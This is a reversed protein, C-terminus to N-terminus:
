VIGQAADSVALRSFSNLMPSAADPEENGDDDAFSAFANRPAKEKGVKGATPPVGPRASHAAPKSVPHQDLASGSGGLGDDLAELGSSLPGRRGRGGRVRARGSGGADDSDQQDIDVKSSTAARAQRAADKAARKAARSLKSGGDEGTAGRARTGILLMATQLFFPHGARATCWVPQQSGGLVVRRHAHEHVQM